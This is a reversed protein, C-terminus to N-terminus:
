PVADLVDGLLERRKRPPARRRGVKKPYGMMVLGVVLEDARCQVLDRFPTKRTVGGTSWKSAVGDDWLQLAFNHLACCTAAYDELQTYGMRTPRARDDRTHTETVEQGSCLVAVFHPVEDRWKAAKREGARASDKVEAVHAGVLEALRAHAEPGLQVFRWPETMKHNPAHVAAHVARLVVEDPVPRDVDFGAGVSRRSCLNDFVASDAPVPVAVSPPSSSDERSPPAASLLRAGLRRLGRPAARRLLM